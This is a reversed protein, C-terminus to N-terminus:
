EDMEIQTFDLRKRIANLSLASNWARLWHEIFCTTFEDMAVDVASQIHYELEPDKDDAPPPAYAPKEQEWTFEWLRTHFADPVGAIDYRTPTDETFVNMDIHNKFRPFRPDRTWIPEMDIAFQIELDSTVFPVRSANERFQLSGYWRVLRVFDNFRIIVRKTFLSSETPLSKLRITYPFSRGAITVSGSVLRRTKPARPLEALTLTADETIETFPHPRKRRFLHDNNDHEM